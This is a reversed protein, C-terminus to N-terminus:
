DQENEGKENEDESNMEDTLFVGSFGPATGLLHGARHLELIDNVAAPNAEKLLALAVDYLRATLIFQQIALNHPAFPDDAAFAAVEEDETAKDEASLHEAPTDRLEAM